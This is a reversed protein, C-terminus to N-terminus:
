TKIGLKKLRSTLTTPKIGLFEAAGSKGSIKGGCEALVRRLNDGEFARIEIETLLGEHHSVSQKSKTSAQNPQLTEFRLRGDTSTIMARELVHQLERINGPWDYRQLTTANATTLRPSQRGFKRALSNLIHEAILPVDDIREALRPIEIPFVSLRYYLDNRFANSESEAKLNRNTAALIRVDVSRTRDDGVREFEGEQLVRLLKSQLDLPIEGIEDLFLTGGHALEFRGVRDKVAGTFSGKTHGFFESEYLERPIAACNVKILPRDARNSRRHIERAVLEKGTGSEGTILVTSDTPAVLAIQEAVKRLGASRGVLEGFSSNEVVQQQLYDNEQELRDRLAQIEEWAVANAVSAGLHDAVARLWSFDEENITGRSFVALVGLVSEGHILPQAAFGRIGEAEVWEPRAIWSRDGEQVNRVELPEGTAAVLGVKREGIRFRSFAGDTASWDENPRVASRGASAVLYVFGEDMPSCALSDKLECGIAPLTLWIRVLAVSSSDNVRRVTLRLAECVNRCRALDLLLTRPSAILPPVQELM